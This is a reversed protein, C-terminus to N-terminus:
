FCSQAQGELRNFVLKSLFISVSFDLFTFCGERFLQSSGELIVEFVVVLVDILLLSIQAMVLSKCCPSIHSWCVSM